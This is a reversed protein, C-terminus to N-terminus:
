SGTLAQSPPLRAARLAPYLGAIAGVGLTAALGGVSAWPPVHVPWHRIASYVTTAVVGFVVGGIGGLASLVLSEALFQLRIQGKTAGLARRLGIEARRELVSIVMTNAVGIGGVLLAVAGLGLLLGTFTQDTLAQAVLLDSPRTVKVEYPKTPNITRALVARVPSVLKDDVRTYLATAHGDFNLFRQAAARGVFAGFDLEPALVSPALIGVVTFRARGVVVQVKGDVDDVGLAKATGAGLVVAPFSAEAPSLWRGAAVSGRVTGLLDEEGAYVAIGSTEGAPIHENRYVAANPVRGVVSVAQVPAMRAVMPAATDPLTVREGDASAPVAVLMNAGLSALRRNLDAHSSASIGVVGIMAAIGITIGLASLAVRTRRARLGARGVYVVDAPRLRAPRLSRRVSRRFPTIM